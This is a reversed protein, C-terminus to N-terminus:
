ARPPGRSTKSLILDAALLGAALPQEYRTNEFRIALDLSAAKGVKIKALLACISCHEPDHGAPRFALGSDAQESPQGVDCAHHHCCCGQEPQSHQTGCAEDSCPLIGHLGHGLAAIGGYIALSALAVARYVRSHRSPRTM